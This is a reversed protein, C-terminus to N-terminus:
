LVTMVLAAVNPAAVRQKVVVHDCFVLLRPLLLSEVVADM